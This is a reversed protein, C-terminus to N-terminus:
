SARGTGTLWCRSGQETCWVDDVFACCCNFQSLGAPAVLGGNVAVPRGTTAAVDYTSMLELSGGSWVKVEGLVDGTVFVDGASDMCRVSGRHASPPFCVLAVRVALAQSRLCSGQCPSVYLEAVGTQLVTSVWFKMILILLVVTFIMMVMNMSMSMRMILTTFIMMIMFSFLSTGPFTRSVLRDQWVLVSGDDAGTLVRGGAM